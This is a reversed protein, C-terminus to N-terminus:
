AEIKSFDAVTHLAGRINALLKLRNQRVAPRDDNVMVSDFFADAPARLTALATMAAEFDEAALAPALDAQTAQLAAHLAQETDDDFLAPDPAGDFVTGDKKEEARLINAARKYGALLNAGDDTALFDSLAEVRKVILVLDDNASVTTPQASAEAPAAQGAPPRDGKGGPPPTSGTSFVADILDHRKGEDRLVQKLRDAFFDLLNDVVEWSHAAVSLSREEDEWLSEVNESTRLEEPVYEALLFQVFAHDRFARNLLTPFMAEQLLARLNPRVGNELVIRVVGLAARRLAFPDKSGTPKEDIAWFGVLTDLKDAL